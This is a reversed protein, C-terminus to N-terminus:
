SQVLLNEVLEARLGLYLLNSRGGSRQIIGKLARKKKLLASGKLHDLSPASIDDTEIKGKSLAIEMLEAGADTRVIVTNWGESGESSGVSVDAFESTMDHCLACSPMIFERIRGLPISFKEDYTYIDFSEAPPPPIDFKIVQKLDTEEKLFTNFEDPSLAWTCFLGIVLKVNGKNNWNESPRNKMKALALTQCPLAAIGLPMESDGCRRNLTELVPCAMYSSGACELIEERNQALTASPSKDDAMKSLIVGDLLGEELAMALLTTVIGGNQARERIQVDTSRAILIKKVVGLENEPYPVGFISASLADMDVYTRPCYQYCQGETLTCNDLLRIKGKWPVLYPCAGSCAGCFSCLGAEIVEDFLERSSGNIKINM